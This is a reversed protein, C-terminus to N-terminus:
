GHASAAFRARSFVGAGAASLYVIQRHASTAPGPGALTRAMNSTPCCVATRPANSSAPYTPSSLVSGSSEPSSSTQKASPWASRRASVPSTRTSSCTRCCTSLRFTQTIADTSLLVTGKSLAVNPHAAIRLVILERDNGGGDRTRPMRAARVSRGEAGGSTRMQRLHPAGMGHRANM